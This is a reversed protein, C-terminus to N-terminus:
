GSMEAALRRFEVDDNTAAVAQAPPAMKTSAAQPVATPVAPAQVGVLQEDVSQQALQDLEDEL